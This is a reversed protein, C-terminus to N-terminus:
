LLRGDIQQQEKSHKIKPIIYCFLLVVVLIIVVVGGISIGIIAGISLFSDQNDGDTHNNPIEADINYMTRNIEWITIDNVNADNSYISFHNLTSKPYILNTMSCFGDDTFFEISSTDTYISFSYKQKAGIACYTIADFEAAFQETSHTRDFTFNGTTPDLSLEAYQNDDNAFKLIIIENNTSINIDIESRVNLKDTIGYEENDKLSISQYTRRDLRLYNTEKVPKNTLTLEGNLESLNIERPISYASRFINTPTKAAYQWNNMWEVAIKRYDPAGSFTVTAYADKGYDVFRVADPAQTCTFVTGNFDGVFYQCASGGAYGGPNINVFLVWKDFEKFYLLDPCEWVGDHCGYGEGFDSLHSWDILNQSGWIEIHQGVALLMIYHGSDYKIVKPDRFDPVGDYYNPIIPNGKYKTWTYGGDTSYAMSQQQYNDSNTYFSLIADKGFGSVNDTDVISSGSFIHGIDDRYLSIPLYEWTFLDESVAHGWAINGWLTGYPNNQYHIHYKGNYYFMGNPDNMWGYKPSFHYSPRYKEDYTISYTDNQVLKKMFTSNNPLDVVLITLKRGKWQSVNLPLEFSVSEDTLACQLDITAELENDIFIKTSYTKESNADIALNLYNKSINFIKLHGFETNEKFSLSFYAFFALFM